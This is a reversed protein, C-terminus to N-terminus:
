ARGTLFDPRTGSARWYDMMRVDRCLPLFRSDARMKASPPIFLMATKRWQLDNLLIRDRGTRLGGALPGRRLLYVEAMAFAADLDGLDSAICIGAIAVGPIQAAAVLNVEMAKAIAAPTRIDLAELQGRWYGITQESVGAPIGERDDLMARAARPRGSHAFIGMRAFWVAPHRPWLQLARDIIRDANDLQGDVWSKYALKLQFIPSLPELMAARESPQRNERSRGVSQM